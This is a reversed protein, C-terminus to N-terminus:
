THFLSLSLSWVFSCSICRLPTFLQIPSLSCILYIHWSFSVSTPHTSSNHYLNDILCYTHPYSLSFFFAWRRNQMFEKREKKRAQKISNCAEGKIARPEGWSLRLKSAIQFTVLNRWYVFQVLYCKHFPAINSESEYLFCPKISMSPERLKKFPGFWAEIENIEMRKVTCVCIYCM